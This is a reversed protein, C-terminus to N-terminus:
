LNKVRMSHIFQQAKTQPKSLNDWLKIHLNRNLIRSAKQRICEADPKKNSNELDIACINRYGFYDGHKQLRFLRWTGTASIIEM